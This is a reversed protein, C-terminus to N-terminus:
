TTEEYVAPYVDSGIMVEVEGNEDTIEITDRFIIQQVYVRIPAGPATPTYFISAGRFTFEGQGAEEALIIIIVGDENPAFSQNASITDLFGAPAGAAKAYIPVNAPVDVRETFGGEGLSLSGGPGLGVIMENTDVRWLTVSVNQTLVRDYRDRVVVRVHALEVGETECELNLSVESMGEEAIIVTESVGTPICGEPPEAVAVKVLVDANITFILCGDTTTTLDGQEIIRNGATVDYVSVLGASAPMEGMTVCVQLYGVAGAGSGSPTLYITAFEMSEVGIYFTVSTNGEGLFPQYGEAYANLYIEKNADVNLTMHGNVTTGQIELGDDSSRMVSVVVTDIPEGTESDLVMIDITGYQGVPPPPPDDPPAYPDCDIKCNDITEDGIPPYDCRGDGCISVRMTDFCDPPLALFIQNSDENVYQLQSSASKGSPCTATVTVKQPEFNYFSFHSKKGRHESKLNHYEDYVKVEIDGRLSPGSLAVVLTFLEDSPTPEVVGGCDVPCITANEEAACIGDGCEAAPAGMPIFLWILLVIVLIIAIPLVIPPISYKEFFEALPIGRDYLWDLLDWCKNNIGSYIGAIPNAM